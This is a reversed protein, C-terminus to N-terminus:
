KGREKLKELEDKLDTIFVDLVEQKTEEFAPRMFPKAPQFRTGFEDFSGYYAKKDPGVMVTLSGEDGGKAKTGMEIHTKLFGTLEPARAEIAKIWVDGAERGARRLVRVALKKTEDRLKQELEAGGEITVKFEAM